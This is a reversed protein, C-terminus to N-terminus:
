QLAHERAPAQPDVVKYAAIGAVVLGSAILATALIALTRRPLSRRSRM